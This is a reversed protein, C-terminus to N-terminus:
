AQTIIPGFSTKALKFGKEPKKEMKKKWRDSQETENNKKEKKKWWRCREKLDNTWDIKKM